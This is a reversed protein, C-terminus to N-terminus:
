LTPSLSNELEVEMSFGDQTEEVNYNEIRKLVEVRENLGAKDPVFITRAFEISDKGTFNINETKNGQENRDTSKRMM